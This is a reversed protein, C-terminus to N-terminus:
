TLSCGGASSELAYLESWIGRVGVSPSLRPYFCLDYLAKREFSFSSGTLRSATAAMIASDTVRSDVLPFATPRSATKCRRM